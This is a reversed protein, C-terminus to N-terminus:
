GWWIPGQADDGEEVEDVAREPAEEELAGGIGELVGHGWVGGIFVHDGVVVGEDVCIDADRAFHAHEVAGGEHSSDDLAHTVPAPELGLDRRM